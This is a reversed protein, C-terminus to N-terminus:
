FGHLVEKVDYVGYELTGYLIDMQSLIEQIKPTRSNHLYYKAIDDAFKFLNTYGYMVYQPRFERTINVIYMRLSARKNKPIRTYFILEM